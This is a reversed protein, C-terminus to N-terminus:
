PVSPSPSRTAPAYSSSRRTERSGISRFLGTRSAWELTRTSSTSWRSPNEFRSGSRIRPYSPVSVPHYETVRSPEHIRQPDQRGVAVGRDDSLALVRRRCWHLDVAGVLSLGQAAGALHTGRGAHPLWIRHRGCGITEDIPRRGGAFICTSPVDDSTNSVRRPPRLSTLISHPHLIGPRPAFNSQRLIPSEFGQSSESLVSELRAGYAM